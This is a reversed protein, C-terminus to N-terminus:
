ELKEDERGNKHTLYVVNGEEDIENVIFDSYRHKIVGGEIEKNEENWYHSIGVESENFVLQTSSEM